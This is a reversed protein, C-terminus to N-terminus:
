DIHRGEMEAPIPLGMQTLITPAVDKINLGERRSPSHKLSPNYMMFTGYQSHNADDSGNDNESTWFSRHGVSGISRRHQDDFYVLLDPAIGRMEPYIDQPRFVSTDLKRGYPDRIAELGQAIENRIRHYDHSPVIGLPERGQVNLFVRGYFGSEAWATTRRWDIKLEHFPTPKDPYEKLRLYGNATLWENVCIGGEFRKAGHDSVVMITADDGVVALIEGIERDLYKYYDLITTSFEADPCYRPHEQDFFRWFAHQIRDTGMEVMMFFDWDKKRLLAKAVRFRKETMQYITNLVSRKEGTRFDKVDLIYGGSLDEVEQKFGGPFTYPASTDGALFCSVLLGNVPKPPYTPPIGLLISRRGWRALVEWISQEKVWSSDVFAMEGYDYRTRNRFGYIGLHGPNKGTVMSAWAPCTISPITSELEGYVGNLALWKLTPLEHLWRDFILEPPAGDLGIVVVKKSYGM